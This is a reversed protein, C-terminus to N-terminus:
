NGRNADAHFAASKRLVNSCPRARRRLERAAAAAGRAPVRDLRNWPRRNAFSARLSKAGAGNPSMQNIMMALSQRVVRLYGQFDRSLFPRLRQADHRYRSTSARELRMAPPLDFHPELDFALAPRLRLFEHHAAGRLGGALLHHLFARDLAGGGGAPGRLHKAGAEVHGRRDVAGIFLALEDVADEFRGVAGALGAAGDDLAQEGFRGGCRKRQLILQDRFNGFVRNPAESRQGRREAVEDGLVLLDFTGAGRPDAVRRQESDKAAGSLRADQAKRRVFRRERQEAAPKAFHRAPNPEAFDGASPTASCCAILGRKVGPLTVISRSPSRAHQPRAGHEAADRRAAAAWKMSIKCPDGRDSGRAVAEDEVADAEDIAFGVLRFHDRQRAARSCSASGNLFRTTSTLRSRQVTRERM